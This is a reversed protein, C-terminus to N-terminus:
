AWASALGVERQGDRSVPCGPAQSSPPDTLADSLLVPQAARAPSAPQRHVPVRLSM